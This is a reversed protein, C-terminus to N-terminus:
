EGVKTYKITVYPIYNAWSAYTIIRLNTGDSDVRIANTNVNDAFPLVRMIKKNTKNVLIGNFECLMDIDSPLSTTTTGTGLENMIITKQYLKNGFWTGIVRETDDYIIGSEESYDNVFYVIDDTLVESGKADYEAKTLEEINASGGGTASIVNDIISINTGATLKDQKYKILNLGARVTSYESDAIFSSDINANVWKQMNHNYMLLNGGQPNTLEVDNLEELTSSGGGGGSSSIIGNESITINNGAEYKLGEAANNITICLQVDDSHGSLEVTVSHGSQNTDVPYVDNNDTYVEIVSNDNILDDTFTHTNTGGALTTVLKKFVVAM